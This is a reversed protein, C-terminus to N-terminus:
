HAAIGAVGTLWLWGEYSYGHGAVQRNTLIATEGKCCGGGAHGGGFFFSFFFPLLM